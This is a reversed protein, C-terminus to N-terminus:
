LIAANEYTAEDCCSGYDEYVQDDHPVFFTKQFTDDNQCGDTVQVTITYTRGSGVGEDREARVWLIDDTADWFCDTSFAGPSSPDDQTSNCSLIQVDFDEDCNDAFSFLSTTAADYRVFENNVPYICTGPNLEIGTPAIHDHVYVTQERAHQNGSRDFSEWNRILNYTEPCSDVQKVESFLLLPDPDCNDYSFLETAVSVDDCPEFITTTVFDIVPPTDDFVTITQTHTVTNSDVDTATWTRILQYEDESTTNVRVEDFDVTVTDDCNDVADIDVEAPFTDCDCPVVEDEPGRTLVPPSTDVITVTQTHTETNGVCDQAFWTYIIEGIEASGTVTLHSDYSENEVEVVCVTPIADCEVTIHKPYDTFTPPTTDVVYTTQVIQDTNQCEDTATFTQEIRFQEPCTTDHKATPNTYSLLGCNDTGYGEQSPIHSHNNGYSGYELTVPSADVDHIEPDTTDDVYFTLTYENANGVEDIFEFTRLITYNYPCSGEIIEESWSVTADSCNDEFDIDDVAGVPVSDCEFTVPGDYPTFTPPTTDYVKVTQTVTDDNGCEDEAYWTREVTYLLQPDITLDAPLVVETFSDTVDGCDDQWSLEAADTNNCERTVQETVAGTFTPATSDRVRISQTATDSNGADDAAYWTRILWYSDPCSLDVREVSEVPVVDDDCTDNATAPEFSPLTCDVTRDAPAYIKPPTMDVVQITQIADAENECDDAAWWYRVYTLNYYPGTVEETYGATTVTGDCIDCATVEPPDELENCDLVLNSSPYGDLVPPTTDYVKVTQDEERENGCPDTAVWTRIIRYSQACTGNVNLEADSVLLTVDNLACDDDATVPDAPMFEDCEITVTEPVDYLNPPTTDDVTVNQSVIREKGCVDVAKWNRTEVYGQLCDWSRNSWKSVDPDEDCNDSATLDEFAPANCEHPGSTADPPSDFTPPEDDYVTLTASYHANHQVWDIAEWNYVITYEHPCGPGPVETLKLTPNPDCPDAAKPPVIPLVGDCPYTANAPEDTFYPDDVDVVYATDCVENELGCEDIATWTRVYAGIVESPDGGLALVDGANVSSLALAVETYYVTVDNGCTDNAELDETNDYTCNYLRQSISNTFSPQNNDTVVITQTDGATNGNADESMWERYVTYNGPCDYEIIESASLSPDTDCNDTHTVLSPIGPVYTECDATEDEPAVVVPPTTDVIYITRYQTDSECTDSATFIHIYRMEAGAYAQDHIAETIPLDGGCTSSATASPVVCATNCECYTTVNEPVVVMEFDDINLVTITQKEEVSNDACDVAYFTRVVKYQYDCDREIETETWPVAIFDVDCTDNATVVPDPITENCLYTKDSPVGWIRPPTTDIVEVTIQHTVNNGCDDEAFYDVTVTHECPQDPSIDRTVPVPGDCFDTANLNPIPQRDDCEDTSSVPLVGDFVPPTNDIVSITWVYPDNCNGVADCAVCYHTIEQELGCLGDAIEPTCTVNAYSCNDDAELTPVDPIETCNVSVSNPMDHSNTTWFPDTNDEIIQTDIYTASNGCEDVAYFTTTLTKQQPTAGDGRVASVQVTVDYEAGVADGDQVCTDNAVLTINQEECYVTRTDQALFIANTTMQEGNYYLIPPEDDYVHIYQSETNVNGVPDVAEWTRVITYEQPCDGDETYQSVTIVTGEDAYHQLLFTVEAIDTIEDHCPQTVNAPTGVITPPVHDCVKITIEHEVENGCEDVAYWTRTLNFCKDNDPIETRIQSYEVEVYEDQEADYATVDIPPRPINDVQVETSVPQVNPIWIFSPPNNDEFSISHSTSNTNSYGDSAEWAWVLTYECPCSGPVLVQTTVVTANGCNDTATMDVIYDEWNPDGCTVTINNPICSLTPPETDVITLTQQDCAENGCNDEACAEFWYKSDDSSQGQTIDPNDDCEDSISPNWSPTDACDITDDDPLTVVPPTIDDIVITRSETVENGACDEAHWTHIIVQGDGGDCTNSVEKTHGVETIDGHEVNYATVNIEPPSWNPAFSADSCNFHQDYDPLGTLTPPTVDVVTHTWTWEASNGCDDEITCTKEFTYDTPCPGQTEVCTMTVDSCDDERAQSDVLHLETFYPPTTDRVEFCWEYENENGCNDEVVWHRCIDYDGECLQDVTETYSFEPLLDCNDDFTPDVRDPATCEYDDGSPKDSISPPSTDVVSENQFHCVELGCEDEACWQHELIYEDICDEDLSDFKTTTITVTVDGCDDAAELVPVTYTENCEHETNLPPLPSTTWYPKDTDQVVITVKHEICNASADCAEWKREVHYDYDCEGQHIVRETYGVTVDSCDDAALAHGPAPLDCEVTENNPLFTWYPDVDDVITITWTASVSNECDDTATFTYVIDGASTVASTTNSSAALVPVHDDCQDCATVNYTPLPDTCNITVHAPVGELTPPEIDQVYISQTETDSLGACDKVTWTRILHYSDSCIYTGTTQSFVIDATLDGECEDSANPTGPAPIDDCPVTTADPIGSLEPAKTDVVTVLQTHEIDNDCDDVAKWTRSLTYQDCTTPTKVESFLVSADGCTDSATLVAADTHTCEETIAGPLPDENWTPDTTDTVFLTQVEEAYNGCEDVASWTREIEYDCDDVAGGINDTETMSYSILGGAGESNDSINVETFFDPISDCQVSISHPVNTITPPTTDYVEVVQSDTATNGCEDTAVWTRTVTYNHTCDNITKEETFTVTADGCLDDGTVVGPSFSAPVTHIEYEQDSPVNELFPPTTDVIQYTQVKSIANGACDAYNYERVITYENICTTPVHTITPDVTTGDECNDSVTLTPAVLNAEDCEVDSYNTLDFDWTPDTNDSVNLVQTGTVSNGCDDAAFWTRILDYTSPCSGDIRVESAEVPVVTDCVDGATPPNFPINSCEATGDAPESILYPPTTDVVTVTHSDEVQHGCADVAYFTFEVAYSGSCDEPGPLETASWEVSVVGDCADSATVDCPEPVVGNECEITRDDETSTLVPPATDEVTVVYSDTAINACNDTAIFEHTRVFTTGCGNVTTILEQLDVDEDCNDEATVNCEMDAPLHPCELTYDDPVGILTPSTNDRVRVTQSAEFTNGSGDIASWSRYINYSDDCSLQDKDETFELTPTEHDCEDLAEPECPAADHNCDLDRNAPVNEITPPTYDVVYITQDLSAVNGCSDVTSWTRVRTEVLRSDVLVMDGNDLFSEEYNVSLSSDCNDSAAHSPAAPIDGCPVVEDSVDPTLTIVPPTVDNVLIRSSCSTTGGNLTLTVTGMAQCSSGPIVLKTQASLQSEFYSSLPLDYSSWSFATAEQSASGDLNIETQGNVCTGIYEVNGSDCIVPANLTCSPGEQSTTGSLVEVTGHIVALTEVEITMAMTSQVDGKLKFTYEVETGKTQHDFNYFHQGSSTEDTDHRTPHVHYMGWDPVDSCSPIYFNVAEADTEDAHVRVRYVYTTYSGDFTRSVFTSDHNDVALALMPLAILLFLM